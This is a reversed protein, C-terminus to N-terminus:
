AASGLDRLADALRRKVGPITLDDIHCPGRNGPYAIVGDAREVAERISDILDAGQAVIHRLYADVLRTHAKAWTRREPTYNYLPRETAIAVREIERATEYNYPGVVKVRVGLHGWDSTFRHASLRDELRATCGVYLLAGAADFARYVVHERLLPTRIPHAFNEPRAYKNTGIM